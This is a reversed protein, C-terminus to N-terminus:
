TISKDVQVVDDSSGAVGLFPPGQRHSANWGRQQNIGTVHSPALDTATVGSFAVVSQLLCRQSRTQFSRM